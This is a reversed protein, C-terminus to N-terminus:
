LIPTATSKALQGAAAGAATKDVAAQSDQQASVGSTPNATQLGPVNLEVGNENFDKVLNQIVPSNDYMSKFTDYDAGFEFHAKNALSGVTKWTLKAPSGKRAYNGIENRLILIFKDLGSDSSAFEYLRM